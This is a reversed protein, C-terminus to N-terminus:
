ASPEEAPTQDESTVGEAVPQTTVDGEVAPVVEVEKWAYTPCSDNIHPVHVM